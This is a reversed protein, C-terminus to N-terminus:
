GEAQAKAEEYVKLGGATLTGDERVQNKAPSFVVGDSARVTFDGGEETIDEVTISGEGAGGKSEGDIELWGAKVFLHESWDKRGDVDVTAGPAIEKEVGDDEVSVMQKSRNTLATM